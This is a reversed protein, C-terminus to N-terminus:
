TLRFTIEAAVSDSVYRATYDGPKASAVGGISGTMLLQGQKVPYGLDLALNVLWAASNMQGALVDGASGAFLEEEGLSLSTTTADIDKVALSDGKILGWTATNTAILDIGNPRGALNPCAIEVVCIPPSLAAAVSAPTVPASIDETLYYGLETELIGDSPSATTTPKETSSLLVGLVPAELGMAQQAPSATVAAKYGVIDEGREHVFAAQAAYADVLDADPSIESFSPYTSASALAQLCQAVFEHSESM